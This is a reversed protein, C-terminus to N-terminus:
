YAVASFEAVTAPSCVQWGSSRVDDLPHYSAERGVTFLRIKPYNSEAIEKEADNTNKVEFEMNSQGGCIWVDGIMVDSLTIKNKGQVGMEFPGGFNMPTLTVMWEGKSNTRTKVKQGNFHVTVAEGKEAWGWIKLPRDRQVVMNSTFIKPLTVNAHAMVAALCLCLLSIITKM